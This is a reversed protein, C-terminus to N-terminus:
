MDHSFNTHGIRKKFVINIIFKGKRDRKFTQLDTTMIGRLARVAVDSQKFLHEQPMRLTVVDPIVKKGSRTKFEYDAIWIEM